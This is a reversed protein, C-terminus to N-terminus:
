SKDMIKRDLRLACHMVARNNALTSDTPQTASPVCQVSPTQLEWMHNPLAPLTLPTAVVQTAWPWKSAVVPVNSHDILPLPGNAVALIGIQIM